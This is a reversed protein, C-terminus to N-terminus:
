KTTVKIKRESTAIIYIGKPLTTLDIDVVGAASAKQTAVVKGDLTCVTAPAHSKLGSFLVHGNAIVPASLHEKVQNTTEFCYYNIDSIPISVTFAESTVVMDEAEFTLVPNSELPVVTENGDNHMIVLNTGDAAYSLTLVCLLTLLTFLRKM